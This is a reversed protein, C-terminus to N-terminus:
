KHKGKFFLALTGPGSHNGIVPGVFNIYLRDVQFREQIAKGLAAAEAECDGHSIFVATPQYALETMKDLLANVSAKRGRVKDVNILHGADDVQLVPKMQLMTGVMAAAASIRGGRKLHNLDDVTFWHCIHGRTEEVFAAAEELTRGKRKEQVTLYVLLGQGLSAALSDVVVIKANEHESMVTKAAICASQYTTSLGSSFAICLIDRGSSVVEEMKAQFVGVSVASTTGLVGGRLKRYFEEPSIDQNDPFNYLERGEMYFSLPLITLELEKVMEASFDCCSDSMIIYDRM